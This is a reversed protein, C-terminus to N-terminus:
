KAEEGTDVYVWKGGRVEIERGNLQARRPTGAAAPGPASASGAERPAQLQTAIFPQQLLRQMKDSLAAEKNQRAVKMVDEVSFPIIRNLKDLEKQAEQRQEESAGHMTRHVRIGTEIEQKVRAIYMAMNIAKDGAVPRMANFSRINSQSGASALGQGELRALAAGLQSSVQQFLRAQQETIEAAGFRVMSQIIKQPDAELLGSFVPLEASAPLGIINGIDASAGLINGYMRNAFVQAYQGASQRPSLKYGEPLVMEGSEDFSPRIMTKTGDPKIVEVPREVRPPRTTAPRMARAQRADLQGQVRIRAQQEASELRQAQQFARELGKSIDESLKILQPLAFKDSYQKLFSAEKRALLEQLKLRAEEKNSIALPVIVNKLESEISRANDRLSKLNTDFVQKERAYRDMDGRRVGEVMGNMASLAAMSNKKGGAGIAMGLVSILGFLAMNEQATRQSPAFRQEAAIRNAERLQDVTPQLETRFAQEAAAMGGAREAAAGAKFEAEAALIDGQRELLDQRTGFEEEQTAMIDSTTVRPATPMEPAPQPMAPPAAPVPMRPTATPQRFLAPMRTQGLLASISDNVTAM